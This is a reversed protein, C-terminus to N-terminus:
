RLERAAAKGGVYGDMPEEAALCVATAYEGDHSISIKAIQGSLDDNQAEASIYDHENVSSLPHPEQRQESTTDRTAISESSSLGSTHGQKAVNDETDSSQGRSKSDFAAQFASAPRDLILAYTPGTQYVGPGGQQRLIQIHKFSLQRWQCAKITAEKAAWRGALYRTVDELQSHFLDAEAEFKRWFISIERSTLFRVLFRTLNKTRAQPPPKLLLQEIRKRHCIDTGIGLAFPFPRPPM